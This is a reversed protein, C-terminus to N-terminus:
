REVRVRLDAAAILRGANGEDHMDVRCAASTAGERAPLVTATAVFPGTRGPRVITTALQEVQLRDTGTGSAIAELGGAELVVQIPGHHLRETGILPSLGPIELRGDDRRRGTYAEWLPPAGPSDAIGDGPDPYVFGPGTPCIVLWNARGFGIARDRNAADFMEVETFVATRAEHTVRGRLYVEAVDTAPDIISVNIQILALINICDINIGAVDLMAIALPAALVGGGPTRLDHRLRMSGEADDRGLARPRSALYRYSMLVGDTGAWEGYPSSAERRQTTNL